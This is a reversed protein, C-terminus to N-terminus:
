ICDQWKTMRDRLNLTEGDIIFFGDGRAHFTRKERRDPNHWARIGELIFMYPGGRPPIKIVKCELSALCEEIMPAGTEEGPRYTLGFHAFKDMSEGSCNGIDVAIEMLDAGPVSVVCKRTNRLIEYTHNWPGLMCGLLPTFGMSMHCSITMANPKGKWSTGILLVPGSEFWTFARNLPFERLSSAHSVKPM